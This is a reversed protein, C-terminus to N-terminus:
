SSKAEATKKLKARYEPGNLENLIEIRTEKGINSLTSNKLSDIMDPIRKEDLLKLAAEAEKADLRDHTQALDDLRMLEFTLEGKWQEKFLTKKRTEAVLHKERAEAILKRSTTWDNKDFKAKDAYARRSGIMGTLALANCQLEEWYDKNDPSSEAKILDALTRIAMQGRLFNDKFTSKHEPLYEYSLRAVHVAIQVSADPRPSYTELVRSYEAESAPEKKGGLRALQRKAEAEARVVRFYSEAALRPPLEKFDNCDARCREAFKALRDFVDKREDANATFRGHELAMEALDAGYEIRWRGAKLRLPDVGAGETESRVTQYCGFIEDFRTRASYAALAAVSKAHNDETKAKQLTETLKRVAKRETPRSLAHALALYGKARTVGDTKQDKLWTRVVRLGDDNTSQVSAHALDVMRDFPMTGELGGDPGAALLWRAAQAADMVSKFEQGLFADDAAVIRVQLTKVADLLIKVAKQSRVSPQISKRENATLSALREAAESIRGAKQEALAFVYRGYSGAGTWPSKPVASKWDGDSEILCEVKLARFWDTPAKVRDCYEIARDCYDVTQFREKGNAPLWTEKEVLRQLVDHFIQSQLTKIKAENKAPRVAGIPVLHAFKMFGRDIRELADWVKPKLPDGSDHVEDLISAFDAFRKEWTEKSADHLDALASLASRERTQRESLKLAPYQIIFKTVEGVDEKAKAAARDSHMTNWARELLVDLIRTHFTDITPQWLVKPHGARFKALKGLAERITPVNKAKIAAGLKTQLEAEARDREAKAKEAEQKKRQVLDDFLPAAVIQDLQKLCEEYQKDKILGDAMKLMKEGAEHGDIRARLSGIDHRTLRKEHSDVSERAVAFARNKIRDDIDQSAIAVVLKSARERWAKAEPHDPFVKLFATVVELHKDVAAITTVKSSPKIKTWWRNEVDQKISDANPLLWTRDALAELAGSYDEKTVLEEVQAKAVLHAIVCGGLALVILVLTAAVRQLTRGAGPGPTPTAPPAVPDSVPLSPKKGTSGRAVEDKTRHPDTAKQPSIPTEDHKAKTSSGHSPDSGVGIAAEDTGSLAQPETRHTDSPNPAVPTRQPGVTVAVKPEATAGHKPAARNLARVFDGCSAFRNRPDKELAKLLVQKEEASFVDGLEPAADLIKQAMKHQTGTFPLKGQRLEIYTIAFSWLDTAISFKDHLISEPAMYAPTGGQTQTGTDEGSVQRLLDFDAIKADGQVLLINGPKIDRHLFVPRHGHLYDLAEATQTFYRLLEEVPIGPLENGKCAKLREKLSGGDALEMEIYLQDGDAWFNETHLLYKHHLPKLTELSRLVRKTDDSNLSKKLIKLAVLHGDREAKWVEGFSGEGIKEIFTHQKIAYGQKHLMFSPKAETKDTVVPEPIAYMREIRALEAVVADASQPRQDPNKCLLHHVFIALPEPIAPNLQRISLPEETALAILIATPSEGRFPLQGTCLRYLVIGLSFLDTRYNIDKKALAQEPSMYSPTGLLSGAATIETTAGGMVKAIGFDLLKVRGSTAEIWLNEPKIDRHVLGLRHAEALGTAAERGIRLIEDLPPSGRTKLSGELSIGQLYEMSIYPMGDIEDAEYITVIHPSKIRSAARSERVFRRRAEFDGDYKPLMIKLATDRGNRQDVALYVVGMGGHGIERIIRYPGLTGIEGLAVPPGFKGRLKRAATLTTVHERSIRHGGGRELTMLWQIRERVTDLLHPCDACLREPSTPSGQEQSDLWRYLIEQIQEESKDSFNMRLCLVYPCAASKARTGITGRAVYSM